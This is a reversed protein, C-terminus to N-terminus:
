RRVDVRISVTQAPLSGSTVTVTYTGENAGLTVGTSAQGNADTTASTRDVSGSPSISFYVAHGSIGRGLRDVVKARIPENMRERPDGSSYGTYTVILQSAPLIGYATTTTEYKPQQGIDQVKATITYLGGSSGLTVQTQARGNSDTTASWPSLIADTPNPERGEIIPGKYIDFYVRVGSSPNRDEGLLEVVLPNPLQQNPNASQNMGSIFSLGPTGGPSGPTQGTSGDQSGPNGGQSGGQQPNQGPTGGQRPPPVTGQVRPNGPVDAIATVNSPGGNGGFRVQTRVQGNGDTRGSDNVLSGNDVSFRVNVDPLPNGNPDLLQFTLTQGDSGMFTLTSGTAPPTAITEGVQGVIDSLPTDNVIPEPLKSLVSNVIMSVDIEADVYETQIETVIREVEVEHRKEEIVVIEVIKQVVTEVPIEVAREQHVGCFYPIGSITACSLTAEQTGSTPLQLKFNDCGAYFGISLLVIALLILSHQFIHNNRM